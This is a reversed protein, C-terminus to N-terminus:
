RMKEIEARLRALYGPLPTDALRVRIATDLKVPVRADVQITKNISIPAQVHIPVTTNVPVALTFTQSGLDLPVVLTTSIPVRTDIAVTDAYAFPVAVSVPVEQELHVPVAITESGLTDAAALARDLADFAAARAWLLAGVLAVNLLLSLAVLLYLPRVAARLESRSVMETQPTHIENTETM